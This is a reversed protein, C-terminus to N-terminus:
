IRRYIPDNSKEPARSLASRPELLSVWLVRDPRLTLTFLSVRAAVLFRHSTSLFIPRSNMCSLSFQAVNRGCLNVM